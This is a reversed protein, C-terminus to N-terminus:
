DENVCRMFMDFGEQASGEYTPEQYEIEKKSKEITGRTIVTQNIGRFQKYGKVTAKIKTGEELEYYSSSWLYTHGETDIIEIMYRYDSNYTYKGKEFLCRTKKVTLEIRDGISGICINNDTRLKDNKERFFNSLMSLIYNLDRWEVYSCSWLVKCSQYYSSEPKEKVKEEIWNQVEKLQEDTITKLIRFSESNDVRLQDLKLKSEEKSYGEKNVLYYSLAKIEDNNLYKSNTFEEPEEELIKVDKLLQALHACVEADFGTYDKLCGKGVQKFKNISENYVIFTNNRIRNTNCHDCKCPADKYLKTMETEYNRDVCRIVNGEEKHEIEGIFTYGNIKYSGEVQYERCKILKKLRIPLEGAIVDKHYEVFQVEGPIIKIIGNSKKEFRKVKKVFAEENSLPIFFSKM